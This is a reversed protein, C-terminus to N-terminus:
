ESSLNFNPILSILRFQYQCDLEAQSANVNPCFGVSVYRSSIQVVLPHVIWDGSCFHCWACLQNERGFTIWFTCFNSQKCVGSCCVHSIPLFGSQGWPAWSVWEDRFDMWTAQTGQVNLQLDCKIKQLESLSEYSGPMLGLWVRVQRHSCM